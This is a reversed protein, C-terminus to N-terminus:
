IWGEATARKIDDETVRRGLTESVAELFHKAIDKQVEKWIYPSSTDRAMKRADMLSSIDVSWDLLDGDIFIAKELVGNKGKRMMVKFSKKGEPVPLSPLNQDM